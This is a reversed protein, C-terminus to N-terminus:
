IKKLPDWCQECAKILEQYTPIFDRYRSEGNEEWGMRIEKDNVLAVFPAGIFANYGWVQSLMKDQLAIAKCEILLLPFALEPGFCLVDLRREPLSKKRECLSPLESLKKEVSIVELPFSCNEVLYSICKQRVIEEPTALIWKQRIPDFIEQQKNLPSSEM